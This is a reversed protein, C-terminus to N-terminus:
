LCEDISVRDNFNTVSSYVLMQRPFGPRDSLRTGVSDSSFKQPWALWISPERPGLASGCRGRVGDLRLELARSRSRGPQPVRSRPLPKDCSGSRVLPTPPPQIMLVRYSVNSIHSVIDIYDHNICTYQYFSALSTDSESAGLTSVLVYPFSGEEQRELRCVM